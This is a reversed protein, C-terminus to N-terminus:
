NQGAEGDDDEMEGEADEDESDKAAKSYQVDDEAADNKDVDDWDGECGPAGKRYKGCYGMLDTFLQANGKLIAFSLATQGGSKWDTRANVDGCNRMIYYFFHRNYDRHQVAAMLCTYGTNDSATLDAGLAVLLTASAVQNAAIACLVPTRGEGDRANVNAGMKSLLRVANFSNNSTAVHLPTGGSADVTEIDAPRQALLAKITDTEDDNAAIHLENRNLEIHENRSHGDITLECVRSSKDEAFIEPFAEDKLLIQLTNIDESLLAARVHQCEIKTCFRLLLAIIEENRHKIASLLPRGSGTNPDAGAQLLLEIMLYGDEYDAYILPTYENVDLAEINAGYELLMKASKYKKFIVAQILLTRKRRVDYLTNVDMGSDLFLRTVATNGRRVSYLLSRKMTKDHCVVEKLAQDAKLSQSENLMSMLKVAGEYQWERSQSRFTTTPNRNKYASILILRALAVHGNMLAWLLPTLDTQFECAFVFKQDAIVIDIIDIAYLRQWVARLVNEHGNAYSAILPYGYRETQHKWYEPPETRIWTSLLRPCGFESLLYLLDANQTHRRIAFPELANSIDIWRTLLFSSLFTSQELETAAEEAHHFVCCSAYDLFPFKTSLYTRLGALAALSPSPRRKRLWDSCETYCLSKAEPRPGPFSSLLSALDSALYVQCCQRLKDHGLSFAHKGQEPWVKELGGDKLLFDNVSEHIFQVTPTKSKTLQALGKSSNLVYEHIGEKQDRTLIRYFLESLTGPIEKLTEELLVQLDPPHRCIVDNLMEIVLKVWMFVGSAKEQVREIINDKFSAPIKSARLCKRIYRELDEGHGVEHELDLRLAHGHDISPYHRTTFCVNFRNKTAPEEENIGPLREVMERAQKEVCEDIADIFCKVKREGLNELVALFLKYLANLTWPKSWDNEFNHLVHQLGLDKTFLQLLLSRYMGTTSKELEEGRANFFFAIVIENKAKKKKAEAYAYNLLTSKGAGPIGYIWLFGNHDKYKSEDTWDIYTQHKLLWACTKPLRYESDITSRRADMQDFRLSDLIKKQDIKARSECVNNLNSECVDNPGSNFFETKLDHMDFQTMYAVERSLRDLALEKGEGYIPVMRVQFIGQLCYVKDEEKTTDRGCVWKMREKISFDKPSFSKAVLARRPIGTLEEIYGSLGVKNSIHTWEKSFFEVSPPALLEQLTWGREFWKKRRLLEKLDVTNAELDQRNVSVDSLYVYCKKSEFYWRYMSAIAESLEPNGPPEKCICCTDVWFYLLNDKKAEQGCFKLKAYGDKSKASKALKLIGDEVVFDEYNIESEDKGWTHSLIAYPPPAQKHHTQVQIISGQEDFTLLRM